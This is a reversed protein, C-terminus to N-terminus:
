CSAHCPAPCRAADRTHCRSHYSSRPVTHAKRPVVIRFSRCRVLSHCDKRQPIPHYVPVFIGCGHAGRQPSAGNTTMEESQSSRRRGLYRKHTTKRAVDAPTAVTALNIKFCVVTFTLMNMLSGFTYNKASPLVDYCLFREVLFLTCFGTTDSGPHSRTDQVEIVRDLRTM